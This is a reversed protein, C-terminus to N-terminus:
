LKGQVLKSALDEDGAVVAAGAALRLEEDIQKDGALDWVVWRAFAVDVDHTDVGADFAHRIVSDVVYIRSTYSTFSTRVSRACAAAARAASRSPRGSAGLSLDKSAWFAGDALKEAHQKDIKDGRAYQEAIEIASVIIQRRRHNPDGVYFELALQACAACFGAANKPNIWDRQYNMNPM